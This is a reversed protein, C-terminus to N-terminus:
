RRQEEVERPVTSAPLVMESRTGYEYAPPREPAQPPSRRPCLGLSPGHGSGDNLKFNRHYPIACFRFFRFIHVPCKPYIRDPSFEVYPVWAPVRLNKNV